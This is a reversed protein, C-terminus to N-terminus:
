EAEAFRDELWANVPAEILTAVAASVGETVGEQLGDEGPCGTLSVLAMLALMGTVLRRKVRMRDRM